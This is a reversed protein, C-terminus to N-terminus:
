SSPRCVSSKTVLLVGEIESVAEVPLEATIEACQTDPLLGGSRIERMLLVLDTRGTNVLLELQKGLIALLNTLRPESQVSEILRGFEDKPM